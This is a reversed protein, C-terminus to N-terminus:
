NTAKPVGAALLAQTEAVGATAVTLIAPKTVPTVLPVLITVNVFLRPQLCVAITVTFGLGVIEPINDTQTPFVVVNTPEAEGAAIVGQTEAVGNTAVTFLVPTTVPNEAPVLSIVYVFEKPQVCVVVTVTLALGAMAPVNPVHTPEVVCNDPDPVAAVLLAQTEPAGATAVTFLEPKTVPTM